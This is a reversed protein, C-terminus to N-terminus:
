SLNNKIETSSRNPLGELPIRKLVLYEAGLERCLEEKEKRDGDENVIFINPKIKKMEPLFDLYGEGSPIFAEKVFKISKIIYLREKENFHPLNGKLMKVNKDSGVAVYLDGYGSATELFKIHGSHVLDFCGSVLVKKRAM